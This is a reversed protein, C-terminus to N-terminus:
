SALGSPRLTAKCTLQSVSLSLPRLTMYSSALNYLEILFHGIPFVHLAALPFVVYIFRDQEWEILSGTDFDLSSCSCSQLGEKNKVAAAGGKLLCALGEGEIALNVSKKRGKEKVFVLFSRRRQEKEEKVVEQAERKWFCVDGHVNVRRGKRREVLAGELVGDTEKIYVVRECRRSEYTNGGRKKVAFRIPM